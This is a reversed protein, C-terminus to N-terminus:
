EKRRGNSIRFQEDFEGTELIHTYAESATQDERMLILPPTCYLGEKGGRKAETLVLSPTHLYDRYVFTMRKPAFGNQSLALLLSELRDPRYVSVFSGGFKTFTAAIKCFDFITGNEEHRAIQRASSPSVKGSNSKMYPPNSFICDFSGSPFDATLLRIDKEIVTVANEMQNALVNKRALTASGNQIEVAYIHSFAKRKAALLSIVSNGAGLELANGHPMKPLYASLLLADTGFAFGNPDQQLIIGHNILDSQSQVVTEISFVEWFPFPPHHVLPVGDRM